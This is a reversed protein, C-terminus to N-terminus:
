NDGSWYLAAEEFLSLTNSLIIEKARKPDLRKISAIQEVLDKMSGVKLKTYPADTELLIKDISVKKLASVGNSYSLQKANFSFYYQPQSTLWDHTADFAKYWHMIAYKVSYEQLIDIIDITSSQNHINFLVKSTLLSHNNFKCIKIIRRLTDVQQAYQPDTQKCLGIEGIFDAGLWMDDFMTLSGSANDINTPHLGLGIRVNPMSYGNDQVSHYQSPNMTVALVGMNEPIKPTIYHDFLHCHVDIYEVM